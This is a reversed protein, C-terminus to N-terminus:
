RWMWILTAASTITLVAAGGAALLRRFRARRSESASLVVPVTALVPLALSVLVDDDSRLSTDLFEVLGALVIGIGLGALVGFMTIQLLNPSFPKEPLRAPDLVKFQEGIQRRELNAAVKSEERKALLTVYINRLTDYDRTLAVLDSERAPAADVRQQYLQMTGRLREQEADKYAIQRDLNEREARLERLRDRRSSDVVPAVPAPARGLDADIAVKAELDRIVRNMRVIDPHNPKLRLAMTALTNRAAELQRAPPEGAEAAAAPSAPPAAPPDPASLEAILSEIVIRRDRDRNVSDNLAQVQLQANHIVQLNSTLQSPLEGTYQRRYQELKKEHEVLRVRADELQTEFFQSASEALSERDRLNEEIVLSALKETVQMATRPNESVFAVRFADGRVVELVVNARMSQVVDEMIGARRREPYLNFEEIVRELRTRNLVQQRLAQLRDEVRTTVTSRVYTDPLRQPVIQILTESRYLKPQLRAFGVAACSVIVLPVVILWKRRWAM